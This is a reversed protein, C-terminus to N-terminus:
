RQFRGRNESRGLAEYLQRSCGERSLEQDIDESRRSACPQRWGEDDSTGVPVPNGEVRWGASRFPLQIQTERSKM